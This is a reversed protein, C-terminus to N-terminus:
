IYRAYLGKAAKYRGTATGALHSVNRNNDKCWKSLCVNEAVLEKTSADYINAKKARYHNFGSLKDKAEKTHKYGLTACHGGVALNWGIGPKSRLEFEVFEALEKEVNELIVEWVLLDGHKNIAREIVACKVYPAKACQKHEKWRKNVNKTIGIYGQTKMCTHTTHRIWYVSYM